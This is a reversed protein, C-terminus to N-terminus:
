SWRSRLIRINAGADESAFAPFKDWCRATIFYVQNDRYWHEFRRQGKYYPGNSHSSKRTRDDM